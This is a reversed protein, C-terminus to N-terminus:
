LIEFINSYIIPAQKEEFNKEFSCHLYFRYIGTSRNILEIPYIANSIFEMTRHGVLGNCIPIGILEWHDGEYKEVYLYLSSCTWIYVSSKYKNIIYFTGKSKQQYVLSDTVMFFSNHELHRTITSNENELIDVDSSDSIYGEKQIVFKHNGVSISDISFYGNSDTTITDSHSNITITANQVPWNNFIDFIFGSLSGYKTPPNLIQNNESDCNLHIISITIFILIFISRNKM